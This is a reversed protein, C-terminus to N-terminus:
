QLSDGRTNCLRCDGKMLQRVGTQSGAETVKNKYSSHWTPNKENGWKQRSFALTISPSLALSGGPEKQRKNLSKTTTTTLNRFWGEKKCEQRGEPLGNM